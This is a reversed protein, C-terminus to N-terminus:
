FIAARKKSIVSRSANMLSPSLNMLYFKFVNLGRFTVAKGAKNYFDNSPDKLSDIKVGFACTAFVDNTYRTFVNGMEGHFTGSPPIKEGIHDAVRKACDDMLSFLFRMKNGTFAPSLSTRMYRWKDGRMSVLGANWLADLDDPVLQRHDSFSDFHKIGIEKLLEPDRIM